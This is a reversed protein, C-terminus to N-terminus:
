HGRNTSRPESEARFTGVKRAHQRSLKALSTLLHHAKFCAKRGDKRTSDDEQIRPSDIDVIGGIRNFHERAGCLKTKCLQSVVCFVVQDM